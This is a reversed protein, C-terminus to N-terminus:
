ESHMPNGIEGPRCFNAAEQRLWSQSAGAFYGVGTRGDSCAIRTWGTDSNHAFGVVSAAGAAVATCLTIALVLLGIKLTRSTM